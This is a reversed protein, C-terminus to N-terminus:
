KISIIRTLSNILDYGDWIFAFDTTKGIPVIRDIGSPANNSIFNNLESEDFGFYALTQYKNNIIPTIENLHTVSYETFYGAKCRFNDINDPLSKAETRWILNDESPELCIDMGISQAYFATLKDVAWVDALRYKQIVFTHLINWFRRKAEKITQNKGRWIILHPSSCANQDFLFTDNYFGEATKEANKNQLYQHADIICISYRDAFTVDFSRAPIPSKRINEITQDGGWIVRIDCIASLTDTLHSSKDYRILAIRKTFLQEANNESLVQRISDAIIQVQEFDKSPVRVINTNGSLVGAILSYAFNVPVNSPAIHFVLGRGLRLRNNKYAKELNLINAKRCFFAFTAVDPMSRTRPNRMLIKSLSDSFSVAEDCFPKLGKQNRLSQLDLATPYLLHINDSNQPMLIAVAESKPM